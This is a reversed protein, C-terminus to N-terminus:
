IPNLIVTKTQKNNNSYLCTKKVEQNYWKFTQAKKSNVLNNISLKCSIKIIQRSSNSISCSTERLQRILLIRNSFSNSSSYYCKNNIILM